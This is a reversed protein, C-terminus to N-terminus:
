NFINKKEPHLFHTYMKTYIENPQGTISKKFTHACLAVASNKHFNLMATANIKKQLLACVCHTHIVVIYAFFLNLKITIMMM